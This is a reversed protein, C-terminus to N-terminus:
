PSARLAFIITVFQLLEALNRRIPRNADFKRIEPMAYRRVLTLAESKPSTGVTAGLFDGETKACVFSCTGRFQLTISGTDLVFCYITTPLQLPRWISFARLPCLVIPFM